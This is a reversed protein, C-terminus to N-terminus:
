RVPINKDRECLVVNLGSRHLKIALSVGAIGGGIIVYKRNDTKPM